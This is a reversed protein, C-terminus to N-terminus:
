GSDEAADVDLGRHQFREGRRHRSTVAAYYEIPPGVDRRRPDRNDVGQQPPYQDAIKRAAVFRLGRHQKRAGLLADGPRDTFQQISQGGTRVPGGVFSDSSGM